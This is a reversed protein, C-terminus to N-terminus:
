SEEICKEAFSIRFETLLIDIEEDVDETEESEVDVDFSEDSDLENNEHSQGQKSVYPSLDFDYSYLVDSSGVMFSVTHNAKTEKKLCLGVVDITM